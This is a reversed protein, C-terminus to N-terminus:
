SRPPGLSEKKPTATDGSRLLIATTPYRPWSVLLEALSSAATSQSSGYRLAGRCGAQQAADRFSLSWRRFPQGEDGAGLRGVVGEVLDDLALFGDGNDTYFPLSAARTTAAM